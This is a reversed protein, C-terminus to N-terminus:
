STPGYACDRVGALDSTAQDLATGRRPSIASMTAQATERSTPSRTAAMKAASGPQQFPTTPPPGVCRQGLRPRELLATPQYPACPGGTRLSRQRRHPPPPGQRPPRRFSIAEVVHKSAAGCSTTSTGCAQALVRSSRQGRARLPGRLRRSPSCNPTTPLRQLTALMDRVTM